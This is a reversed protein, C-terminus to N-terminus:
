FSFASNKPKMLQVGYKTLKVGDDGILIYILSSTKKSIDIQNM